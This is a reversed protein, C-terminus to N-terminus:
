QRLCGRPAPSDLAGRRMLQELCWSDSTKRHFQVFSGKFTIYDPILKYLNDFITLYFSPAKLLFIIHESTSTVWLLGTWSNTSYKSMQVATKWLLESSQHIPKQPWIRFPFASGRKFMGLLKKRMNNLFMLWHIQEPKWEASSWLM